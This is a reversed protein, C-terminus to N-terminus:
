DGPAQSSVQLAERRRSVSEVAATHSSKPRPRLGVSSGAATPGVPLGGPGVGVTVNMSTVL